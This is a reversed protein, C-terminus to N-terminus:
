VFEKNMQDAEMQSELMKYVIIACYASGIFDKTEKSFKEIWLGISPNLEKIRKLEKKLFKKDQSSQINQVMSACIEPKVKPLLYM